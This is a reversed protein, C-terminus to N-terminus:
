HYHDKSGWFTASILNSSGRGEQNYRRFHRKPQRAELTPKPCLNQCGARDPSSHAKQLVLLSVRHRQLRPDAGQVRRVRGPGADRTLVNPPQQLTLPFASRDAAKPPSYWNLLLKFTLRNIERPIVLNPLLYHWPTLVDKVRIRSRKPLFKSVYIIRLLFHDSVECKSIVKAWINSIEHIRMQAMIMGTLQVQDQVLQSEHVPSKSCIGM